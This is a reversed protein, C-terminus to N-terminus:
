EGRLGKALLLRLEGVPTSNGKPLDVGNSAAFDRVQKATWNSLDITQDGNTLILPNEPEAPAAAAEADKKAQEAEIVRRTIEGQILAERDDDDNDNWEAIKLGSRKFAEAVIEGLPVPDAGETITVHPPQVDSGKLLEDADDEDDAQAQAQVKVGAISTSGDPNVTVPLTHSQPASHGAAPAGSYERYAEPIALLRAVAREDEVTAVCHGQANPAFVYNLGFLEVPTPEKRRYAHIQM